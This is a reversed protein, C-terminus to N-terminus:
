RRVRYRQAEEIDQREIERVVEWRRLLFRLGIDKVKPPVVTFQNRAVERMSVPGRNPVINTAWQFVFGLNWLILSGLTGVLVWRAMAPRFYRPLWRQAEDLVSALGIVFLPTLSLFFRNSFSSQGHWNQYSAVVYWFALFTLISRWGLAPHKRVLPVFGLCALWVVPTWLWLGHEPSLLVSVLRPSTWFWQETYGLEWPTGFLVTKIVAHPLVGLTVGSTWALVPLSGSRLFTRLPMRSRIWWSLAEIGDLLVFTWLLPNIYYTTFLLGSLVGLLFWQLKTRIFPMTEGAPRYTKWWFWVFASAIFASHAHSMFPLLYMYVFLGSAFWMSVAAGLAAWGNTLAHATAHVLLLGLFGLLTTGFACAYLYPRSFGDDPIPRHPRVWRNHIQVGLHATAFFPAWFLSPGVAFKNQVHGTPTILHTRIRDNEDFYIRYHWPDAHRYEDEFRLDGDTLLSAVYAYYGVGDGRLYPTVLPLTLLFLIVMLTKSRDMRRSM